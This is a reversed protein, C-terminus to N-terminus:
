RGDKETQPAPFLPASLDRHEGCENCVAIIAPITFIGPMDDGIETAYIGWCGCCHPRASGNANLRGHPIMTADLLVM